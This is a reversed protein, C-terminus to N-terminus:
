PGDNLFPDLGTVRGRVVQPAEGTLVKLQYRILAQLKFLETVNQNRYSKGNSEVSASQM